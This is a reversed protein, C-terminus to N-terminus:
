KAGCHCANSSMKCFVFSLIAAVVVIAISVNMPIFVDGIRVQARTILRIIHAFAALGFFGSFWM